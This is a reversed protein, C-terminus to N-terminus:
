GSGLVKEAERGERRTRAMKIISFAIEYLLMILIFFSGDEHPV